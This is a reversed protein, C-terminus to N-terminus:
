TPMKVITRVRSCDVIERYKYSLFPLSASDRRNSLTENTMKIAPYITIM